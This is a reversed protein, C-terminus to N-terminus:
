ICSLFMKKQNEKCFDENNKTLLKKKLIQMKKSAFDLLKEYRQM